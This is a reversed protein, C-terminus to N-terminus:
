STTLQKVFNYVCFYVIEQWIHMELETKDCATKYIRIKFIHFM